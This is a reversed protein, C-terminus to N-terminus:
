FKSTQGFTTYNGRMHLIVKREGLRRVLAHPSEASGEDDVSDFGVIHKLVEAIEPNDDPYLTAEFLPSFLNELMDQFSRTGEGKSCFIRWLRPVQILWRNHTSLVKGPYDGPWDHLIWCALRQWETREM